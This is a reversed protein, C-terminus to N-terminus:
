AVAFAWLAPVPLASEPSLSSISPVRLGTARGRWAGLVKRKLIKWKRLTSAANSLWQARNRMPTGPRNGSIIDSAPRPNGCPDLDILTELWHPHAPYGRRLHREQSCGAGGPRKGRLPWELHQGRAKSWGAFCCPKTVRQEFGSM